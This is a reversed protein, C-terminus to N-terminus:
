KRAAFEKMAAQLGQAMAEPKQTSDSVKVEVFTLQKLVGATAVKKAAAGYAPVGWGAIDTGSAIRKKADFLRQAADATTNTAVLVTIIKDDNQFMCNSGNPANGMPLTKAVGILSTVQASTLVACAVNVPPAQALILSLALSPISVLM